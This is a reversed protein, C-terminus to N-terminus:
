LLLRVQADEFAAIGQSMSTASSKGGKEVVKYLSQIVTPTIKIGPEAATVAAASEEENKKEPIVPLFEYLGFVASTYKSVNSPIFGQIRDLTSVPIGSCARLMTKGTMHHKFRCFREQGNGLLQEIDHM